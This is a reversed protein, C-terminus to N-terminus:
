RGFSFVRFTRSMGLPNWTSAAPRTAGVRSVTITTRDPQVMPQNYLSLRYSAGPTVTGSLHFTLTVTSKPPIGLFTSYTYVGYQRGSSVAIAKNDLSASELRLPSYISLWLRSTGPPPKAPGPTGIVESPLGSSPAQNDLTVTLDHTVKGSAPDYSVHDTVTRNLYADIKDAGADATVVGLVDGGNYSPFRGALGIRELFPQDAKHLSWLLMDGARVVPGLTAALAGPGPLSGSSLKAVAQQLADALAARRADQELPQPFDLYQQRELVGAANAADLTGLGPVQIPGTFDLLAALSRPDLVMLGDLSGNGAERYLQDAVDAVTPLDPAYTINQPYEAPNQGYMAIFGPPGALKGGGHAALQGALYSIDHFTGLSLKGDSATVVSYSVVLGGLGRSESTDMLAVMYHRTGNGGLLSPAAAVAQAALSASRAAKAVKTYLLDLRSRLPGVLWPSRVSSLRATGGNLASSVEQLPNQLATLAALDIGGHSYHLGAFDIRGAQAGAVATIKSAVQTAAVVGLRQEAVLPVLKAGSAWLSGTRAAASEFDQHAVALEAKAPNANGASVLSLADEAVATGSTVEQRALVAEVAVPVSLAVAGFAAFALLWSTVRRARRPLRSRAHLLCPVVAVGGVLASGGLFGVSPLRLLVQVALAASLAGVPAIARRTFTSALTVILDAAAPFIVYGRSFGGALAAMWLLTARGASAGAATVLGAFFADYIPDVVATGTPHAGSLAGAVASAAVLALVGTVCLRTSAPAERVGRGTM